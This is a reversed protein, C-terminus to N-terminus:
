QQNGDAGAVPKDVPLAIVSAAPRNSTARAAQHASAAFEAAEVLLVGTTRLAAEASRAETLKDGYVARMRDRLATAVDALEALVLHLDDLVPAWTDLPPLPALADPGALDQQADVLMGAIVRLSAATRGAANDVPAVFSVASAAALRRDSM